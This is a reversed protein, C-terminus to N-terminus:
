MASPDTSGPGTPPMQIPANSNLASILLSSEPHGPVVVVGDKGGKLVAERSDLRLGGSATRTHCSFCNKALLPRVKTEFFQEQEPTIKSAPLDSAPAPPPPSAVPPAETTTPKPAAVPTDAAKVAVPEPGPRASVSAADASLDLIWKEIAAIDSDALKGRPPMKLDPDGYQVAKLLLSNEPHGPIVVPGRGGGKMLTAFSDMRLEGAHGGFTHCGNCNKFVIPQIRDQFSAVPDADTQATVPLAAVLGMALLGTSRVFGCSPMFGM